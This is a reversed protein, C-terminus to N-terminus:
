KDLKMVGQIEFFKTLYDKFYDYYQERNLLETYEKLKMIDEKTEGKVNVDFGKLHLGVTKGDKSKNCWDLINVKYNYFFEDLASDNMKSVFNSLFIKVINPYLKDFGKLLLNKSKIDNVGIITNDILILKSYAIVKFDGFIGTNEIQEPKVKSKIYCGDIESKLPIGYKTALYLVDNYVLSRLKHLTTNGDYIMILNTLTYNYLFKKTSKLIPLKAITYCYNVFMEYTKATMAKISYNVFARTFDIKIVNDYIGNEAIIMKSSPLEVAKVKPIKNDHWFRVIFDNVIREM